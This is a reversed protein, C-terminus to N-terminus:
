LKYLKFGGEEDEIRVGKPERVIVYSSYIDGACASAHLSFMIAFGIPSVISFLLLVCLMLSVIIFPSLLIILYERKSYFSGYSGVYVFMLRFKFTLKGKPDFLKYFIAHILEHITAAVIWSLLAYFVVLLEPYIVDSPIVVGVGLTLHVIKIAIFWGIALASFSVLGTLTELKKNGRIIVERYCGM